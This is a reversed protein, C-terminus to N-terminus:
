LYYVKHSSVTNKKTRYEVDNRNETYKETQFLEYVANSISKHCFWSSFIIFFFTLKHEHLHSDIKHGLVNM